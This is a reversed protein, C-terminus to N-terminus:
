LSADQLFRTILKSSVTNLRPLTFLSPDLCKPHYLLLLDEENKMCAPSVQSSSWCVFLCGPRLRYLLCVSLCVLRRLIMICIAFFRLMCRCLEEVYLVLCLACLTTQPDLISPSLSHAMSRGNQFMLVVLLSLEVYVCFESIGTRNFTMTSRM